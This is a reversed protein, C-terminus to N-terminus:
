REDNFDNNKGATAERRRRLSFRSFAFSPKMMTHLTQSFNGFEQSGIEKQEKKLIFSVKAVLQFAIFCGILM